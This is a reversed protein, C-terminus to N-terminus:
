SNFGKLKALLEIDNGKLPSVISKKAIAAKNFPKYFYRVTLSSDGGRAGFEVVESLPLTNQMNQVFRVVSNLTDGTVRLEVVLQSSDDNVVGGTGKVPKDKEVEKTYLKGPNITYGKIEVGSAIASANLSSVIQSVDQERPLALNVLDVTNDLETTDIKRLTELSSELLEIESKVGKLENRVLQFQAIQPLFIKLVIIFAFFYFAVPVFNPRYKKIYLDIQSKNM